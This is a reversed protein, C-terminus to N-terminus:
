GDASASLLEKLVKAYAERDPSEDTKSSGVGSPVTVSGIGASLAWSDLGRLISDAQGLLHRSHTLGDLAGCDALVRCVFEQDEEKMVGKEVAYACEVCIAIPVAYGHPLKYGSMAELRGACWLAFDTPGNKVRSSVCDKVLKAMTAADRAKLAEADKAVGKMLTADCVAAYRVIEGIGGRWVGDLVTSAFATDIVVASPRCPTRVADKVGEADLAAFDAFSCDVMSAVTTPMRVLKMGGRVQSAAFGAVDLITGGGIVLMVDSTGVKAALAASVVNQLSQYGDAKIKEGGGIVVPTAALTVGNAQVFRGISTGLGQTRHVVNADAVLFVRPADSGTVERLTQALVDSGEGFVDDAFRVPYSGKEAWSVSLGDTKRARAM